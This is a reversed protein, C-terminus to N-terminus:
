ILNVIYKGDYFVNHEKSCEEIFYQSAYLVRKKEFIRKGDEIKYLKNLSYKTGIINQSGKINTYIADDRVADMGLYASYDSIVEDEPLEDYLEVFEADTVNVFDESRGISKINYVNNYIDNLTDDDASIHIVLEVGYLIEYFKLSTTLSRFKSVPLTYKNLEYEKVRKNLEKERSKIRNERRLAYNYEDSGKESKKKLDTYKAKSKKLKDLVVKLRNKKFDSIKDNLNKLNRYEELLEENEVNITIGKRFSNGQTKKASAVRTYAKSLKESDNMKVLIGRDDMTSNLFCYDTYAKKGMSEFRGQISVDMPHTETYGCANHLAGIVTSFPPLPYTMKNTVTEERRYNASSQNLKIRLCKM